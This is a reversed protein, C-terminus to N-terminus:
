SMLVMMDANYIMLKPSEIVSVLFKAVDIMKKLGCKLRIAFGKEMMGGATVRVATEYNIEDTGVEIMSKPLVMTSIM